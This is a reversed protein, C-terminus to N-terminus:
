GGLEERGYLTIVNWWTWVRGILQREFHSKTRSIFTVTILSTEWLIFYIHSESLKVGAQRCSHVHTHLIITFSSNNINPHGFSSPIVEITNHWVRKLTIYVNSHCVRVATSTSLAEAYRKTNFPTVVDLSTLCEVVIWPGM